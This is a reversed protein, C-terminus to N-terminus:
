QASQLSSVMDELCSGALHVTGKIQSKNRKSTLLIYSFSMDDGASTEPILLNSDCNVFFKSWLTNSKLLKM